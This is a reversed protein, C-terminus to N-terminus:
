VFCGFVLVICVIGDFLGYGLLLRWGVFIFLM